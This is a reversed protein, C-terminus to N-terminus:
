LCKGWVDWVSVFCKCLVLMVKISCGYWVKLGCVAWMGWVYVLSAGSMGLM